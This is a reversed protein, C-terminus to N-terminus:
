VPEQERFAIAQIGASRCLLRESLASTILTPRCEVTRTAHRSKKRRGTVADSHEIGVCSKAGPLTANRSGSSSDYPLPM